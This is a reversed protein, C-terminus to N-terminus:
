HAALHTFLIFYVIFSALQYVYQSVPKATESYKVRGNDMEEINIKETSNSLKFFRGVEPLSLRQLREQEQHKGGKVIQCNFQCRDAAKACKNESSFSANVHASGQFTRSKDSGHFVAKQSITCAM